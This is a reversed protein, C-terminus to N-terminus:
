CGLSRFVEEIVEREFNKDQGSFAREGLGKISRVLYGYSAVDSGSLKDAEIKWFSIIKTVQAVNRDAESSSTLNATLQYVKQLFDPANGKRCESILM